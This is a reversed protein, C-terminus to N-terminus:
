RDHFSFSGVAGLGDPGDDLPQAVPAPCDYGPVRDVGPTRPGACAKLWRGVIPGAIVSAILWLALTTLM